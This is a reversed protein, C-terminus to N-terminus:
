RWENASAPVGRGQRLMVALILGGLCAYVLGTVTSALAPDVAPLLDSFGSGIHVGGHVGIAAWLSRTWVLLAAAFLAFGFPFVLYLVRDLATEQWGNSVLHIVTFSLTTVVVARLPHARLASMLMGRFILEEPFGQVLFAPILMAVVVLVFPGQAAIQEATPAAGINPLLASVLLSIAATVLTATLLWLISSRTFRLGIDALRRREIFRVWLWVLLLATLWIASALVAYLGISAWSMQSGLGKLGPLASFLAAVPASALNAAFLMVIAVIVRIATGVPGIGLRPAADLNKDSSPRSATHSTM